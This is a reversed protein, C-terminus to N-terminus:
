AQKAVSREQNHNCTINQQVLNYNKALTAEDRYGQALTNNHL